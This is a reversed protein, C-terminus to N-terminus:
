APEFSRRATRSSPTGRSGGPRRAAPRPVRPSARGQRRRDPAAAATRRSAARGPASRRVLRRCCAAIAGAQSSSRNSGAMAASSSGASSSRAGSSRRTLRRFASAPRPRPAAAPPRASAARAARGAGAPLSGPRPSGAQRSPRTSTWSSPLWSIQRPQSAAGPISTTSRHAPAPPLVSASAASIAPSPRITAQSVSRPRSERM